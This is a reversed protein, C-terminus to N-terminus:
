SPVWIGRRLRAMKDKCGTVLSSPVTPCISLRRTRRLPVGSVLAKLFRWWQRTLTFLMSELEETPQESGCFYRWTSTNRVRNGVFEQFDGSEKCLSLFRTSM